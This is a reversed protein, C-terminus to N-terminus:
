DCISVYPPHFNLNKTIQLVGPFNIFKLVYRAVARDEESFEEETKEKLDFKRSEFPLSVREGESSVFNVEKAEQLIASFTGVLYRRVRPNEINWYDSLPFRLFFSAVRSATMGLGCCGSSNMKLVRKGSEEVFIIHIIGSQPRKYICEEEGNLIQKLVLPYLERISTFEVTM